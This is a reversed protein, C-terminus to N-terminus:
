TARSKGAYLMNGIEDLELAEKRELERRFRQELKERHKNLVEVDRSCKALHRQAADVQEKCEEIFLEQAFVADKAAELDLTVSALQERRRSIEVGSIPQEDHSILLNRRLTQKKQALARQAARLEELKEKALRLQEQKQVLAQEAQEKIRIKQDLLPQLRYTFNPM